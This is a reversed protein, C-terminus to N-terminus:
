GQSARTEIIVIIITVIIIVIMAIQRGHVCVQEDLEAEQAQRTQRGAAEQKEGKQLKAQHGAVETEQEKMKDAKLKSVNNEYSLTHKIKSAQTNLEMKKKNFGETNSSAAELEKRVSKVGLQVPHLWIPRHVVRNSRGHIVTHTCVTLFRWLFAAITVALTAVANRLHM